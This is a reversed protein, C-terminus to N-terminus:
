AKQFDPRLEKWVEPSLKPGLTEIVRSALINGFVACTRLPEGRLYNFLFGTSFLDGAGTTDICDAKFAPVEHKESGSQVWAGREGAKVVAVKCLSALATVAQEPEMGTFALAEERNAFVLDVYEPIVMQLFELNDTVVNYSALDLATMCGAAKAMRLAKHILEQKQVLYGEIYFFSWGRFLETTLFEPGLELAAGLYTGFTREGDSTLLANARGTPRDPRFFYPKIGKSEMDKIYFDGWSDKGTSGIFGATAGLEALGYITNAACGGAVWTKELGATLRDLRALGEEDVHHMTGKSWHFEGLLREDDLRIIVDVLANGMGLVSM